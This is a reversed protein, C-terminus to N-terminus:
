GVIDYNTQLKSFLFNYISYSFYWSIFLDMLRISKKLEQEEKEVKFLYDFLDPLLVEIGVSIINQSIIKQSYYINKQFFL